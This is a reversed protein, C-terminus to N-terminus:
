NWSQLAGRNDVTLRTSIGAGNAGKSLVIYAGDRYLTYEPRNVSRMVEDANPEFSKGFRIKQTSIFAVARNPEAQYGNPLLAYYDSPTWHDQYGVAIRLANGAWNMTSRDFQLLHRVRNKEALELGDFDATDNPSASPPYVFPIEYGPPLAAQSGACLSVAVCALIVWSALSATMFKLFSRETFAGGSM